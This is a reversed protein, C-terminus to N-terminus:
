ASCNKPSTSECATIADDLKLPRYSAIAQEIQDIEGELNRLRETLSAIDGATEIVEILKARRGKKREPDNTLSEVSVVAGHRAMEALRKRVEVECQTIAAELIKPRWPSILRRQLSLLFL